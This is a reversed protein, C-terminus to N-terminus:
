TFFHFGFNSPLFIGRCYLFLLISFAVAVFRYYASRSGSFLDRGLHAILFVWGAFIFTTLLDLFTVGYYERFSAGPKLFPSVLFASSFVWLGFTAFIVVILILPNRMM